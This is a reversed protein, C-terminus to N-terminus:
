GLTGITACSKGAANLAEAIWTVCSTKGNTGTVAIVSVAASPHGYWADAIEGLRARLNEVPLIPVPYGADKLAQSQQQEQDGVEALIAAAGKKVADELYAHGSVVSGACAVFVDGKQIDRSDLRLDAKDTVHGDLWQAIQRSNM